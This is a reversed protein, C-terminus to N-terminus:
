ISSVIAIKKNIYKVASADFAGHGKDRVLHVIAKYLRRYFADGVFTGNSRKVVTLDMAYKTYFQQQFELYDYTPSILYHRRFLPDLKTWHKKYSGIDFISPINEPFRFNYTSCHIHYKSEHPNYVDMNDVAMVQDDLDAVDSINYKKKLTKLIAPKISLLSKKYEGGKNVCESRTFIPRNFKVKCAREIQKIIYNAWKKESATYVFIEAQPVNAKLKRVFESFYPRVIGNVLKQELDKFGYGIKGGNLRVENAIDYVAIQPTIDGIITGDLDLVIVLPKM